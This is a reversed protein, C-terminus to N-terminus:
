VFGLTPLRKVSEACYKVVLQLLFLCIRILPINPLFFCILHVFFASKTKHLRNIFLLTSLLALAGGHVGPNPLMVNLFDFPCM